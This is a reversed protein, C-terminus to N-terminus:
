LTMPNLETMASSRNLIIFVVSRSDPYSTTRKKGRAFDNRLVLPFQASGVTVPKSHTASIGKLTANCACSRTGSRNTV